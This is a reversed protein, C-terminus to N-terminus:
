RSNKEKGILDVWDTLALEFHTTSPDRIIALLLMMCGPSRARKAVDLLEQQV